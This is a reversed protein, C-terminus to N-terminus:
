QMEAELKAIILGVEAFFASVFYKTHREGKTM